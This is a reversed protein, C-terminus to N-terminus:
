DKSKNFFPLLKNKEKNSYIGCDYKLNTRLLSFSEKLDDNSSSHRLKEKAKFFQDTADFSLFLAGSSDYYWDELNKEISEMKEKDLETESAAIKVKETLRWLEKYAEVRSAAIAILFEARARDKQLLANLCYGVAAAVLALVGKDVLALIIKESLIMSM